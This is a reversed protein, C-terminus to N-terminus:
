LEEKRSSSTSSATATTTSSAKSKSKKSKAKEKKAAKPKPIRQSQMSKMLLDSLTTQLQRAKVELDSVLVAPDEYPGLKEQLALKEELWMKTTEYPKTLSSLDESTYQYPKFVPEEAVETASATKGYPDDELDDGEATSSPLTASSVSEVVSAAASSASAIADKAAKDISSEVMQIMGTMNELSEKLSKIADERKGAEKKRSLVPDVIARLSKLKDKFDQLKADVGDGYLWESTASLQKELEGRVKDSSFGIFDKDELYDRAKYTYAELTNLAEERLVTNRDSSDFQSLRQRIRSLSSTPPANLGLAKSKLELPIVVATPKSVKASKAKSLSASSAASTQSVTSGSSTPDSVPLPTVTAPDDVAEGDADLDLPHQESGKKSGFGFLGKVGDIVSGDKSSEPLCSVSGSTIEPLGDFPNLRVYFVTSINSAACGHKEKLVAASKTLNTAEVESILQETGDVTQEFTFTVDELINLPVEKEAGVQSTAPFLKQSRDKGEASWKLNVASGSMEYAKIEKVRFSASLGAAKFTAGMVAAEDSNVNTKIKSAAGPITELQKQVFPTRVTGGHLIVSELDDLTIGATELAQILPTSVRAAHPKALKEFHERAINYKFKTDEYYLSELSAVTMSNASLVQRIKEAEKWLRAMTKGDKKVHVPELGLKKISESEVFQNIMDKVILDNLIDGGLTRDYGTGVVQVEQITKNRKAFDKITRGQFKLVTATTSGAGMDYVLHYQPKAGDSVNEFTRSTAYNLGVALGDSITGLLRLGALEAALEVARKEEATYYPPITIVADTVLSGKGVAAEASEKINKLEMALLEEVMFPEKGAYNKSRFGVTGRANDEFRSISDVILGPYRATWEKVEDSFRPLGLLTKLNSFVDSPYRASLAVADGGYLREPFADKDNTQARSPKFALAAAEKRKSDKTLVVDIPSGPKAIAAKIYETGLDIGLVAHQASACTSLLLLVLLSLLAPWSAKRRGPPAM